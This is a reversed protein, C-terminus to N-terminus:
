FKLSYTELVFLKIQSFEAIDVYIGTFSISKYTNGLIHNRSKTRTKIQLPPTEPVSVGLICANGSHPSPTDSGQRSIQSPNTWMCQPGEFTIM